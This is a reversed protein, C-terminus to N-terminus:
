PVVAFHQSKQSAGVLVRSVCYILVTRHSLAMLVPEGSVVSGLAIQLNSFPVSSGFSIKTSGFCSNVSKGNAM